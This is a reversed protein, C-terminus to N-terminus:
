FLTTNNLWLLTKPGIGGDQKAGIVAQLWKASRGPGSNVAADFVAYDVGSPLQDCRCRDWYGSRYIQRLQDDSINRLARKSKAEGFHRRFTALTVGKMTAGGPDRPHDAWGGEHILVHKLSNEFNKKM